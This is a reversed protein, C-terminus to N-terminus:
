CNRYSLYIALLDSSILQLAKRAALEEDDRLTQQVLRLMARSAPEKLATVHSIHQALNSQKVLLYAPFFACPWPKQPDCQDLDLFDQWHSYVKATSVNQSSSSNLANNAFELDVEILACWNALAYVPKHIAGYSLALRHLLIPRQFLDPCNTLCKIAAPYDPIQLLMASQHHEPQQVNFDMGQTSNALRRWAFSLFDRTNKGLLEQALPRVEQILGLLEAGLDDAVVLAYDQMHLGYNILDQYRGLRDCQPDLETLNQLRNQARTFQRDGLASLLQNEEIQAQNDMFLDLQPQDQPRLWHQTLQTHHQKNRSASLMIVADSNWRMFDQTQQNLELSLCHQSTADFLSQLDLKALQLVDDLTEHQGYRWAEYDAEHLYSGDRLWDLLCFYGYQSLKENVSAIDLM